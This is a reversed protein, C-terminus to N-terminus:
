IVAIFLRFFCSGILPAAPVRHYRMGDTIARALLGPPLNIPVALEKLRNLESQLGYQVFALLLSNDVQLKKHTARMLMDVTLADICLHIAHRTDVHAMSPASIPADPRRYLFIEPESEPQQLWWQLLTINHEFVLHRVINESVMSGIATSFEANLLLRRVRSDLKKDRIFNLAIQMATYIGRGPAVKESDIVVNELRSNSLAYKCTNMLYIEGTGGVNVLRLDVDELKLFITLDPPHHIKRGLFGVHHTRFRKLHPSYIYSLDVDADFVFDNDLVLEELRIAPSLRPIVSAPCRLIKLQPAVCAVLEAALAVGKSFTTKNSVAHIQL